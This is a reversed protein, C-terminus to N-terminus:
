KRMMQGALLYVCYKYFHELPVENAPVEFSLPDEDYVAAMYDHIVVRADPNGCGEVLANCLNVSQVSEAVEQRHATMAVALEKQFSGSRMSRMTSKGM